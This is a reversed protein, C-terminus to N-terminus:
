ASTAGIPGMAKNIPSLLDLVTVVKLDQYRDLIEIYPERIPDREAFDRMSASPQVNESDVFEGV